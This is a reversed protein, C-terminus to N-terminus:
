GNKKILFGLRSIDEWFEPYSKVVVEPEEISIEGLIALPAFAMAMRHDEYTKFVPEKVNAQGSIHMEDDGIETVSVGVKALEIRLASIRDTEKIRLTKLGTMKAPVGLAGCIVALTQAIDPCETFDYEFKEPLKTDPRRTIRIGKEEFTTYVGFSEMVTRIVSDGQTSDPYLGHIEIEAGQSIAAIAYHYSVASWDAEVRFPTGKYKGPKVSIGTESEQYEAGFRAMMRLTMRIYPLSVPKGEFKIELGDELTPAVMLLASIYQSSIDAAVKIERKNNEGEPSDILLPPYGENELYTINAGLERLADVLVGIPRQKMRESGTLINSGSRFSLYATLFRFTTGAPGADLTHNDSALLALLTQTDKASALGELSFNEGSLARIILARNSISKSGPLHIIGAFSDPATIQIM